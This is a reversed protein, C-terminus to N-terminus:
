HGKMFIIVLFTNVMIKFDLKLSMNEIYYFDFKLKEKVDDLSSDYKHKIQAWGTIGPKVSLRKYYYPIEMSLKEVFFPREPRPGVISMENKLVNILQPIEDLYVMRILRGIGTIRPDNEGAWEPGYEEADKVMSRFKYMNFQRSNRGVREQKYFIPGKSSVKILLVILILLPSLVVLLVASILVDLVRKFLKSGYPMIEPMVEIFPVGYLQNTKALGSVIEYTDPMIKMNVDTEQCYRIIDFLKEKENEELAILVESIKYIDIIRKLSLIDGLLQGSANSKQVSVFGKFKYGLQPFRGLLNELENGRKKAGIIISNRLGIGKQLMTMQLSRILIRGSGVSLVMLGWYILILFRSIARSDSMADDLFIVFFLIFCGFSITKLVSAFEDFRSRVFWHQYIGAFSFIVVWYFYIALSPIIFTAAASYPIWGSEVRVLYYLIWAANITIFDSLVLLLREKFRSM